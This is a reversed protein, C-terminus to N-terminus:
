GNTTARISSDITDAWLPEVGVMPSDITDAWLPEVDVLAQTQRQQALDWIRNVGMSQM